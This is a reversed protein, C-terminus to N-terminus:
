LAAVNLLNQRKAIRLRIVAVATLSLVRSGLHENPLDNGVAPVIRVDLGACIVTEVAINVGHQACVKLAAIVANQVGDGHRITRNGTEGSCGLTARLGDCQRQVIRGAAVLAAYSIRCTHQGM